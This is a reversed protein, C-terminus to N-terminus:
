MLYYWPILDSELKDTRQEEDLESTTYSLKM